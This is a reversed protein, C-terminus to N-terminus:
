AHGPHGSALWPGVRPVVLVGLVLGLGVSTAIAWQRLGAGRVQRRTHTIWDRPALRATDLLHGLVHLAMVALWLVFSAKHLLLM